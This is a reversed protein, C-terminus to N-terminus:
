ARVPSGDPRAHGAQRRGLGWDRLRVLALMLLVVGLYALVTTEVPLRRHLALTPVGYALEVHIWYVFLSAQGLTRLPSWGPLRATWAWAAPLLLLIIGLRMLFFTRSFAWVTRDPGFDLTLALVTAVAVAAAGVVGCWALGSPRPRGADADLWAGAVVGLCVFATWPVVAFSTRGFTPRVYGEIADPLADFLPAGYIAPMWWVLSVALVIFGATRARAGRAGWWVAAAIMMSVGMVNLIDVKLISRLSGGSILWAQARFAFALGLILLGRRWVRSATDDPGEPLRRRRSGAALAIGVGVLFLFLPAAYGGIVIAWHYLPTTRDALRTWADFVHADIMMLVALGRLRDLYELRTSSAPASV